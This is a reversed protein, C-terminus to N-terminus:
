QPPIDVGYERIKYLLARHSIELIQAAHTRNGNTQMLAARIYEEELQRVAKKISLEEPNTPVAPKSGIRQLGAPLSDLVIHPGDSLVASREVANELERVNGPWSYGQLVRMAREDVGEVHTGLRENTKEIFHQVLPGVDAIRERLPPLHIQVVNLRYYLDQRFRKHRVEEELDKATAAIVRVNVQRSKSSGVRRIEGEQLTRLLKVQLSLPLEGIEDLFLSGGDAEEFMGKRDSYADTFAGRVHGFLESELLQPPIAGCNLAVFSKQSRPSERHIARAVLEKGTGSEGTVLVTSQFPAVKEILNYVLKMPESDGVINGFCRGEDLRAKLDVITNQLRAREELKRLTLVLEDQKFPKSVYDYAGKKMAQIATDVTGYASMVVVPISINRRALEDLMEMGSMGPMLIDSLILGYEETQLRELANKPNPAHVVDYGATQLQMVVMEAFSEDDEVLLINKILPATM